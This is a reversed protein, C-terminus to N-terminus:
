KMYPKNAEFFSELLEDKLHKAITPQGPFLDTLEEIDDNMNYLEFSDEQEYGTYYILKYNGKRMSVTAEKLPHFAASKKAEVTFISREMDETGGLAPLVKGESWSPISKGALQAFTPLLDVASTPSYVDRRTTQGPASIILPIHIIPDYLLPTIHGREGREFMEGHDSTIIVYSNEFIGAKELRDIFKGFEWDISAIYEDYARRSGKISKADSVTALRHVPKNVPAWGDVFKAWFPDTCRYPAHPMFLHLYAFSSQKLNLLLSTLGAFVDELRFYVPYTDEHPLGRIYGKSNLGASKRYYLAREVPGFVLSVPAKAFKFVFDDMARTATHADNPFYDGFLFNLEGFTEPALMTDIDNAFQTLLFQSWVNQGFSLRNSQDGVASFINNPIMASKVQGGFNIARHTWPYTGTLLSATGPITFNGGSIHSHYVTAHEAFREFNPSTARPYGYLSLNRASMADFLIIIVNPQSNQKQKLNADAWSAAEPLLLASATAGALKMFDRRNIQSKPMKKGEM